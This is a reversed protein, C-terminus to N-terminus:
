THEYPVVETRGGTKVFKHESSVNNSIISRFKPTYEQDKVLLIVQNGKLYGPLKNAINERQSNDTNALPTDIFIPFKFGSVESLAAIFSLLLLQKTGSAINYIRENGNPDLLSMTYKDDIEFKAYNANDWHLDIFSEFTRKEVSERVEDLIEDNIHKLHSLARDMFDAIKKMSDYDELKRAIEDNKRQLLVIKDKKEQIAIENDIMSKDQKLIAGRLESREQNLRRIEEENHQDLNNNIEKIRLINTNIKNKLDVTEEIKSKRLERFNGSLSKLINATEYRGEILDGALDSLDDQILIENLAEFANKTEESKNPDLSRGCICVKKDILERVYVSKIKPPLENSKSSAEISNNLKQISTCCMAHPAFSLLSEDLEYNISVLKDNLNNNEKEMIKRQESWENILAVNVNDLTEDIVSIRSEANNETIQFVNMKDEHAEIQTRITDISRQNSEIEKSEKGQSKGKYLKERSFEIHQISSKVQQIQSIKEIAAKINDRKYFSFIKELKEGEFLFFMHIDEPLISNIKNQCYVKDTIPNAQNNEWEVVTINVDEDEVMRHGSKLCRVERRIVYKPTNTSDENLTIEVKLNDYGGEDLEDKKELNFPHINGKNYDGLDKGYLCWSLASLFTTKGTDSKAEIITFKEQSDEKFNIIQNGYFPRFNTLKIESIWM